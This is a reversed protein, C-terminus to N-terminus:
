LKNISKDADKQDFVPFLEECKSAAQEKIAPTISSKVLKYVAYMAALDDTYGAVPIFDPILDIPVILYGLAGIILLKKDYSVEDSKMVYYLLLALYIVKQGATAVIGSIKSWFSDDSYAKVYKPDNTNPTEM